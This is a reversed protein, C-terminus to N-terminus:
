QLFHWCSSLAFVMVVGSMFSRGDAYSRQKEQVSNVAEAEGLDISQVATASQGSDKLCQTQATQCKKSCELLSSPDATCPSSCKTFESMCAMAKTANNPAASGM